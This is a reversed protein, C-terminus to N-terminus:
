KLVLELLEPRSFDIFVDVETQGSEPLYWSDDYHKSGHDLDTAHKSGIMDCLKGKLVFIDACM